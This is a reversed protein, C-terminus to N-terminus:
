LAPSFSILGSKNHQDFSKDVNTDIQNPLSFNPYIVSKSNSRKSFSNPYFNYIFLLTLSQEFGLFKM